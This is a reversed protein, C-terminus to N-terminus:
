CPSCPSSWTASRTVHLGVSTVTNSAATDSIGPWATRLRVDLDAYSVNLHDFTVATVDPLRAAQQEIMQHAAVASRRGYRSGM